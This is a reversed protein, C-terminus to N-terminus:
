DKVFISTGSLIKRNLSTSQIFIRWSGFDGPKVKIETSPFGLIDRADKGGFKKYDSKRVIVLEKYPQVAETKTLEYFTSGKVYPKGTSSEVFDKIVYDKQAAFMKGSVEQLNNRVASSSLKSADVQFLNSVSRTGASRATVYGSYSSSVTQGMTEFGKESTADWVQINGAPFGVNKAFHVDQARPVLIATTWADSLNAIKTRLDFGTNLSANEQGDTIVYMLFTHDKKDNKFSANLAEHQKIATISADILATMGRAFFQISNADFKELPVNFAPVVIQNDFLYVSIVTEQDKVNSARIEKITDAFVRRVAPLHSQMSGSADVCFIVHNVLSIPAVVKKKTPMEVFEQEHRRYPHVVNASASPTSGEHGSEHAM